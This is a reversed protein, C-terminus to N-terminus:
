FEFLLYVHFEFYDPDILSFLCRGRAVKRRAPNQLLMESRNKWHTGIRIM